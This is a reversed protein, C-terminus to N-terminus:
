FIRGETKECWSYIWVHSMTFDCIRAPGTFIFSCFSRQPFVGCLCCSVSNIVDSLLHVCSPDRSLDTITRYSFSNTLIHELKTGFKVSKDYFACNPWIKCKDAPSTTAFSFSFSFSKAANRARVSVKLQDRSFFSPSKTNKWWEPMKAEELKCLLAM